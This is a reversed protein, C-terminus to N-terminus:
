HSDKNHEFREHIYKPSIVVSYHLAVVEHHQQAQHQHENSRQIDFHVVEESTVKQPITLM